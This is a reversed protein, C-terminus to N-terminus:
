DYAVGKNLIRLIYYYIFGYMILFFISDSKGMSFGFVNIGAITILAFIFSFFIYILDQSSWRLNERNEM